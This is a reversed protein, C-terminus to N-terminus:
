TPEPTLYMLAELYHELTLRGSTHEGTYIMIRRQKWRLCDAASDRSLLHNVLTEVVDENVRSQDDSPCFISQDDWELNFIEAGGVKKYLQNHWGELHNIIYM